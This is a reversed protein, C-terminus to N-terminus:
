IRQKKISERIGFLRLSALVNSRALGIIGYVNEMTITPIDMHEEVFDDSQYYGWANRTSGKVLRTVLMYTMKNSPVIALCFISPVQSIKALAEFLLRGIARFKVKRLSVWKEDQLLSLGIFYGTTNRHPQILFPIEVEGTVDIYNKPNFKFLERWIPNSVDIYNM